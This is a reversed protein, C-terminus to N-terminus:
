DDRDEHFSIVVCDRRLALKVYMVCDIVVPKFVYLWEASVDSQVRGVFEEAGLESLVDVVDTWEFLLGLEVLEQQAKRTLTVEGAEALSHVQHLVRLLWRAM